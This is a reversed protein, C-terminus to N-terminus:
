CKIHAENATHLAFFHIHFFLLNSKVKKNREKQTNM